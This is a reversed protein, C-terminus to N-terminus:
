IVGSYTKIANNFNNLDPSISVRMFTSQPVFSSTLGSESDFCYNRAKNLTPDFHSCQWVSESSM